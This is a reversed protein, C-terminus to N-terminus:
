SIRWRLHRWYLKKILVIVHYEVRSLWAVPEDGWELPFRYGWEQMYPGFVRKARAMIEPTYYSVFDQRKGPTENVCPLPRKQAIAMLELVRCFDEQLSEYRIVFDFRKHSLSSWDSHPHRYSQKFFSAFDSRAREVLTHRRKEILLRHLIGHGGHQNGAKSHGTSRCRHYLTVAVDLPNRICSFVFYGREVASAAREFDFYTAHRHLVPSGGYNALLERRIATSATHPLEVFVYRHEHSVIM